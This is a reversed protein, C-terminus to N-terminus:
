WEREGKRKTYRFIQTCMGILYWMSFICKANWKRITISYILPNAITTADYKYYCFIYLLNYSRIHDGNVMALMIM